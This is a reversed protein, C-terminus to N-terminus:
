KQSGVLTLYEPTRNRCLHCLLPPKSITKHLKRWEGTVDGWKLDFTRRWVLFAMRHQIASGYHLVPQLISAPLRPSPSNIEWKYIWLVFRLEYKPVHIDFAKLWRLTNVRWTGIFPLPTTGVGTGITVARSVGINTTTPPIQGSYPLPLKTSPNSTKIPESGGSSNNTFNTDRPTLQASSLQIRM